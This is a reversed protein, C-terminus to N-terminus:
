KKVFFCVQSRKSLNDCINRAQEETMPGIRIRWFIENNAFMIRVINGDFSGLVDKNFKKIRLWENKADEETKLSGLQVTWDNAAKIVKNSLTNTVDTNANTISKAISKDSSTVILKPDISLKYQENLELPQEIPSLLREIQQRNDNQSIMNHYILRDRNPVNMGGRSEPKIKIQRDDAKIVQVVATKNKSLSGSFIICLVIISFVIFLVLAVILIFRM